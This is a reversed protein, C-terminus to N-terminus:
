KNKNRKDKIANITKNRNTEDKTEIKTKDKEGKNKPQEPVVQKDPNKKKDSSEPTTSSNDKKVGSENKPQEETVPTEVQDKNGTDDKDRIDSGDGPNQVPRTTQVSPQPTRKGSNKHNAASNGRGTTKSTQRIPTLKRIAANNRAENLQSLIDAEFKQDTLSILEDIISLRTENEDCEPSSLADNCTQWWNQKIVDLQSKLEDLRTQRANISDNLEIVQQCQIALQDLASPMNNQANSLVCFLMSFALYLIPKRIM